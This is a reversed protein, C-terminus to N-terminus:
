AKGYTPSKECHIHDKEIVVDYRSGLDKKLLMAASEPKCPLDNTRIDLASNSYHMSGKMHVGDTASTVTFVHGPLVRSLASFVAIYFDNIEKFIVGDKIKVLM